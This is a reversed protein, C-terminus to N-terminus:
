KLDCTNLMALTGNLNCDCEICGDAHHYQLDWFTPKCQDCIRGDVNKRCSCLEGPQVKDCGAFDPTVGAPHCNCEECAPFNYFNPKCRDCREGEFNGKCYCQGKSDCAQGKAGDILCSCAELRSGGKCNPYGYYGIDCQDCKEGVFGDKCMCQGSHQDCIGDETGVPDCNCLKCPMTDNWQVGDQRYYGFVCKNCNVGETFDRRTVTPDTRDNLHMLHGQLTRTGLLRIRVNTARTFNQLAESSSFKFRSPRHELIKIVMEANELPHIGALDSRCVVRDDESIPSLSEMGFQQELDITINVHNFEMGRSLPPSQWWSTNGDVMNEAPHANETGAMCHGCGHGGQIFAEREQRMERYALPNTPDDQYSYYNLPSYQTSGTLSCYVENIPQGNHEGCTSSARIPKRHSITLLSPTLVQAATMTWLAAFLLVSSTM